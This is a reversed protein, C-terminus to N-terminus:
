DLKVLIRDGERKAEYCALDREAPERTCKGTPIHFRAGHLPCAIEEGEVFGMSLNAEAHPCVDELAYYRGNLLYVGIKRGGVEAQLPTEESVDGAAGVDKWKV